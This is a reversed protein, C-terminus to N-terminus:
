TGEQQRFHSSGEAPYTLTGKMDQIEDAKYDPFPLANQERLAAIEAQADASQASDPQPGRNMLIHQQPLALSVGLDRLTDLIRLNLDEEIAKYDEISIIGVYCNLVIVYADTEINEFRVRRAEELIKEHRHILSRLAILVKRIEDPSTQLSIRLSKRYLRRDIESFNELHRSSFESNPVHVVKRDLKRIRTSRLGIEEVTGIIDGFQCFDGPAIPRAVYMTFAGFVNELTKQAALAVALSGIGLGTLVTAINFGADALWALIIGLTVLVKLTTSLPRVIASSFSKKLRHKELYFGTLIEIIGLSIVVLALYDLLGSAFWVKARLSLGLSALGIDILKFILFYRLGRRIFRRLIAGYHAGRCLWALLTTVAWAVAISALVILLFGVFQWNEMGMVTFTPLYRALSEIRKPYGFEGWLVPVQNLTSNSIRWVRGGEGDPIRQMLVPIEEGSHLTIYGILDRYVPLGDDLHGEPQDSLSTIDLVRQQSWVIALRRILEPAGIQAVDDTLFRTDIYQAASEWDRQVAAKHLMIAAAQPTRGRVLEHHHVDASESLEASRGELEVLEKLKVEENATALVPLLCLILLTCLTRM